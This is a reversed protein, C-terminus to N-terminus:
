TSVRGPKEPSYVVVSIDDAAGQPRLAAFTLSRLGLTPHHIRKVTLRPAAIAGANWVRSFEPSSARVEDILAAIQPHGAYRATDARFQAAAFEALSQWDAFLERWPQWSFIMQLVNRRNAPVAVFDGFITSAATNWDLIDWRGNLVYAPQRDLGAIWHKLVEPTQVSFDPLVSEAPRALAYLHAREAASLLLADALQALVDTSARINRGQELWVYWTPSIGALQAVEERRLGATRRRAGARLGVHAPMVGARKTRLFASLEARRAAAHPFTNTGTSTDAMTKSRM